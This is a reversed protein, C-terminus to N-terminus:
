SSWTSVGWVATGWLAGTAIPTFGEGAYAWLNVDVRWSQATVRHKVGQVHFTGEMGGPEDMWYIAQRDMLEVDVLDQINAVDADPDIEGSVADIRETKGALESLWFDARAEADADYRCTLDFRQNTRKGYTIVSDPDSATYATSGSRAASIWNRVDDLDQGTGFDTPGVPAVGSVNSWTMQTTTAREVGSGAAWALPRLLRIRGSRDVFLVSGADSEVTAQAEDLLNRAFNSSQHEVTAPDLLAYSADVEALELIRLLRADTTDGNGVLPGEPLDVAALEALRDTLRCLLRFEGSDPDWKDVISRVAGRYLPIWDTAPAGLDVGAPRELVRASLRLEQGLQIPSTARMSWRDGVERWVLALEATGASVRSYAKQRGRTVSVAEIESGSLPVFDPELGSWSGSDWSSVDWVLNGAAVGRLGAEVRLEVRRRWSM